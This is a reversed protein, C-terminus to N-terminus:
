NQNNKNEKETSESMLERTREFIPAYNTQSVHSNISYSLRKPNDNEVKLSDKYKQQWNEANWAGDEYQKEPSGIFNKWSHKFSPNKEKLRKYFYYQDHVYRLKGKKSMTNVFRGIAMYHNPQNIESIGFYEALVQNAKKGEETLQEPDPFKPPEEEPSTANSEVIEDENNEENDNNSLITVIKNKQEITLHNLQKIIDCISQSNGQLHKTFHEAFAKDLAKDLAKDFNSLAIINASYQNKSKEIMQIFGWDILDNMAGKYTNYTVGIADM